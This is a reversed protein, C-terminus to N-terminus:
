RSCSCYFQWAYRLRNVAAVTSLFTLMWDYKNCMGVQAYEMREVGRWFATSDYLITMLGPFPKFAFFEGVFIIM